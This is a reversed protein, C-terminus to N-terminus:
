FEKKGTAKKLAKEAEDLVDSVFQDGDENIRKVLRDLAAYMEPAAAILLANAQEPDSRHSVSCIHPYTDGCARMGRKKEVAEINAVSASKSGRVEWPGPTFKCPTAVIAPLVPMVYTVIIARAKDPDTRGKRDGNSHDHMVWSIVADIAGADLFWKALLEWDTFSDDWLYVYAEWVEPGGPVTKIFDLAACEGLAKGEVPCGGGTLKENITELITNM